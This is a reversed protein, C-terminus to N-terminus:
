PSMSLSATMTFGKEAEEVSRSSPCDRRLRSWHTPNTRGLHVGNKKGNNFKILNRNAQDESKELGRQNSARCKVM